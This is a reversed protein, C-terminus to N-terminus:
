ETAPQNPMGHPRACPCARDPELLGIMGFAEM